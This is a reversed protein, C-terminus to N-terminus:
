SGRPKLLALGVRSTVGFLVGAVGYPALRMAIEVIKIVIDNLAELWAIMTKARDARIMTIAAGFILSFFIVGLLDLDVASKVPNRTVVNVLTQIGFTSTAAAQVKAAADGAYTHLLEARVAVSLGSGPRVVRVLVLGLTASLATTVLFYGIAKGGVRGAVRLDGLGAVGLSISAFVLPIVIMFLLNLFIQGVPQALYTKVGTVFPHTSGLGVNAVLGAIGGLILGLLIKTHLKMGQGTGGVPETM